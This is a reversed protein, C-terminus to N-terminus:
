CQIHEVRCWAAYSVGRVFLLPQRGRGCVQRRLLELTTM